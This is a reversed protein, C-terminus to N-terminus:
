TSIAWSADPTLCVKTDAITHGVGHLTTGLIFDDVPATEDIHNSLALNLLEGSFHGYTRRSCGRM